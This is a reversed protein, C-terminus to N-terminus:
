SNLTTAVSVSPLTSCDVFTARMSLLPGTILMDIEGDNAVGNTISM